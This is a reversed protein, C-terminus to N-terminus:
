ARKSALRLHGKGGGAGDPLGPGPRPGSDDLMFGAVARSLSVAQQQLSHSAAAAQEVLASNQHTMQDMQIIAQSVEFIGNAQEASAHSIEHIMDGVQQVSSVLEAMSDGAEAVSASGGEIAAVSQVILEKIEQAALASRRALTRVEGAVSAFGRGHEGARAAEVSANLALISTENAISDILGAIEVVRRASGQIASMTNVLREVVDGGKAAVSSASKALRNALLASSATRSVTATLQEMSCATQELSSAQAEARNSLDANGLAIQRSATDISRASELIAKLTGNLNRISADLARSTESIEDKGYDRERVTLNGSALDLAAAGIATVERLLARRVAMTILLSVVISLVIVIPMLISIARFDAATSDSAQESLERELQALETLRLSVMEFAREPRAMANASISQDVQAMEIVDLVEKVYAAHASEAQEIFRREASGPETVKVLGGFGREIAIHRQHLDHILSEVRASSFSGGIWSLLQYIETHARHAAAVLEAADRIHAARQQVIIEMSRNQRVMAYYAGSSLMVLLLLVVCPALLLKPGIRLKGLM